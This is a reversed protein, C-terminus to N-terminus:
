AAEDAPTAVEALGARLRDEVLLAATGLSREAEALYLHAVACHRDLVLSQRAAAAADVPQGLDLLAASLLAHFLAQDPLLGIAQRLRAQALAPLGGTLAFV